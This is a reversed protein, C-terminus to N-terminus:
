SLQDERSFLRTEQTFMLWLFPKDLSLFINAILYKFRFTQKFHEVEAILYLNEIITFHYVLEFLPQWVRTKIVKQVPNSLSWFRVM